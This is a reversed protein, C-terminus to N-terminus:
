GQFCAPSGFAAGQNGSHASVNPAAKPRVGASARTSAFRNAARVRISVAAVSPIVLGVAFVWRLCMKRFVPTVRWASSIRRQVPSIEGVPDFRHDRKAELDSSLGAGLDLLHRNPVVAASINALAIGLM